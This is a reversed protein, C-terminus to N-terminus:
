FKQSLPSEYGLFLLGTLIDVGIVSGLSNDVVFGSFFQIIEHGKM